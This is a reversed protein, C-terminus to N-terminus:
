FVGYSIPNYRSIDSRIQDSRLTAVLDPGAGASLLVQPDAERLAQLSGVGAARLRLALDPGGSEQLCNLLSAFTEGPRASAGAQAIGIPDAM